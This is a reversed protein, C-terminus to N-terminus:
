LLQVTEPNEDRKLDRRFVSLSVEFWLLPALQVILRVLVGQGLDEFVKASGLIGNM